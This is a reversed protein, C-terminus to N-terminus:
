LNRETCGSDLEPVRGTIKQYHTFTGLALFVLLATLTVKVMVKRTSVVFIFLILLFFIYFYPSYMQAMGSAIVDTTDAMSSLCPDPYAAIQFTFFSDIAIAALSIIAM